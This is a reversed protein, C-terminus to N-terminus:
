DVVKYEWHYQKDIGTRHANVLNSWHGLYLTHYEWTRSRFAEYTADLLAQSINHQLDPLVLVPLGTYLHAVDPPVIPYSGLLLTEYSRYTDPGAGRPSLVFRHQALQKFFDNITMDPDGYTICTSLNRLPAATGNCTANYLPARSHHNGLNFNVVMQKDYPKPHLPSPYIGNVLGHTGQALLDSLIFFNNSPSNYRWMSVGLPLCTLKPHDSKCSMSFWHILRPDDLLQRAWPFDGPLVVDGGHSILIFSTNILPLLERAAQEFFHSEVFVVTSPQLCPATLNSLATINPGYNVGNHTFPEVPNVPHNAVVDALTKFSGTSILDLYGPNGLLPVNGQYPPQTFSRKRYCCTKLCVWPEEQKQQEKQEQQSHAPLTDLQVAYGKNIWGTATFVVASVVLLTTVVALTCYGQLQHQQQQQPLTSAAPSLAATQGGM